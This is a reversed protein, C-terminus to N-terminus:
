LGSGFVGVIAAAERPAHEGSLPAAARLAPDAM